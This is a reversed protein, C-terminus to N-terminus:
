YIRYISSSVASHKTRDHTRDSKYCFHNRCTVHTAVSDQSCDLYYVTRVHVVVSAHIRSEHEACGHGAPALM